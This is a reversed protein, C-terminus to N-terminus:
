SSCSRTCRSKGQWCPQLTSGALSGSCSVWHTYTQTSCLYRDSLKAKKTFIVPKKNSFSNTVKLPLNCSCFYHIRKHKERGKSHLSQCSSMPTSSPVKAGQLIGKYVTTRRNKQSLCSKWPTNYSMNSIKATTVFM